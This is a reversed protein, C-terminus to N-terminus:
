HISLNGFQYKSVSGTHHGFNGSSKRILTIELSVDTYSVSSTRLSQRVHGFNGSSWCIMIIESNVNNENTCSVSSTRLLIRVNVFM